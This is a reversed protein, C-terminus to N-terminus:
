PAEVEVFYRPRWLELSFIDPKTHTLVLVLNGYSQAALPIYPPLRRALTLLHLFLAYLDRTEVSVESFLELGALGFQM